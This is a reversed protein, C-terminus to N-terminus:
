PVAGAAAAGFAWVKVFDVAVIIQHNGFAAGFVPVAFRNRAAPTRPSGEFSVRTIWNERMSIEFRTRDLARTVSIENLSVVSTPPRDKEAKPGRRSHRMVQATFSKERRNRPRFVAPGDDIAVARDRRPHVHLRQRLM